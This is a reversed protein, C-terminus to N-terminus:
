TTNPTSILKVFVAVEHLKENMKEGKNTSDINNKEYKMELTNTKNM